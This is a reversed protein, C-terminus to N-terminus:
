LPCGCFTPMGRRPSHFSLPMGKRVSLLFINLSEGIQMSERKERRQLFSIADILFPFIASEQMTRSRIIWRFSSSFLSFQSLFAVAVNLIVSSTYSVITAILSTSAHKKWTFSILLYPPIIGCGSADWLLLLGHSFLVKQINISCSEVFSHSSPVTPHFFAVAVACALHQSPINGPNVTFRSILLFPSLADEKTRFWRAKRGERVTSVFAVSAPTIWFWQCPLLLSFRQWSPPFPLFLSSRTSFFHNATQPAEARTIRFWQCRKSFIDLSILLCTNLWSFFSHHFNRFYACTVDIPYNSPSSVSFTIDM